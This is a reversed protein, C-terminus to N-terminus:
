KIEFDSITKTKASSYLSLKDGKNLQVKTTTIRKGNLLFYNKTGESAYVYFTNDNRKEFYLMPKTEDCYKHIMNGDSDNFNFFDKIEKRGFEKSQYIIMSKGSNFIAFQSFKDKRDFLANQLEDLTPRNYPNVELTRLLINNLEVSIESNLEKPAKFIKKNLVRHRIEIDLPEDGFNYPNRGTLLEIIIIGLTFIDSKETPIQENYYEPSKYMPTGVLKVMNGNPISWDFDSLIIRYGLKTRKGIDDNVLMVQAPKLDQHVINYSHLNKVIGCLLLSITKRKEFDGNEFLWKELDVGSLKQKVQYYNGREVFHDIFKETVSGMSNLKEILLSQNEFFRPFIPDSERPDSYEKLFYKESGLKVFYSNAMNGQNVFEIIIYKGVKNGNQLLM